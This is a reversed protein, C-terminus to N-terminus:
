ASVPKWRSGEIPQNRDDEDEEQSWKGDKRKGGGGEHQARSDNHAFM